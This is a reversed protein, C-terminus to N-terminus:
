WHIHISSFTHHTRVWSLINSSTFTGMAVCLDKSFMDQLLEMWLWLLLLQSADDVFLHVRWAPMDAGRQEGMGGFKHGNMKQHRMLSCCNIQHISSSTQVFMKMASRLSRPLKKLSIGAWELERHITSYHVAIYCNHRMLTTLEDLFWDPRHNILELLYHLDELNFIRPRGTYQSRPKVVNGTDNYLKKIRYFTMCSFGICDLIESLGLIGQEHLRIAAFKLDASIKRNGM